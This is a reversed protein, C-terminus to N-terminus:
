VVVKWGNCDGERRLSIGKGTGNAFTMRVPDWDFGTDHKYSLNCLQCLISSHGGVGADTIPLRRSEVCELFNRMHNDSRYLDAKKIEAAYSKEIGDLAKELGMAGKGVTAFRIKDPMFECKEIQRRIEPNPKVLGTGTWVAIKNRAVAVIGDDGYFVSGWGHWSSDWVQRGAPTEPWVSSFPGHYLKVDGYPRKFLMGMGWQRRGGHYLDTSHPEDSRIIRYPGGNDMDLAWQVIDLHHAGWDGNMGSALDDDCRWFMPTGSRGRYSLESSYPRYRAPGLWMAWDIDPNPAGEKAANKPDNWFRVPHSPGGFKGIAGYNADVFRVNGILGGRVLSVADRFLRTSRQWSGTQLVRGYKTQAEMVQKAEEVSYTLPKECFVDKGHKMAEVSIYAHWHDPTAICFLDIGPDKVLERFDYSIRCGGTGYAKDVDKAFLAARSRDCDCVAVVKVNPAIKRDLLQGMLYRNMGGCGIIAVTRKEGPKLQRLGVKATAKGALAMTATTGFLFNRRNIKM